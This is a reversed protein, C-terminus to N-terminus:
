KLASASSDVWATSWRVGEGNIFMIGIFKIGLILLVELTSYRQPIEGV